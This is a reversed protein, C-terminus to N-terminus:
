LYIAVPPYVRIILEASDSVKHGFELGDVVWITAWAWGCRGSM